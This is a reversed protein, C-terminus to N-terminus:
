QILKHSINSYLPHQDQPLAGTEARADPVKILDVIRNKCVPFSHTSLQLSSAIKSVVSLLSILFYIRQEHRLQEDVEAGPVNRHFMTQHYSLAEDVAM